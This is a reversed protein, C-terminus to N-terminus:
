AGARAPRSVPAASRTLRRVRAVEVDVRSTAGSPGRRFHRRLAREEPDASFRGRLVVENVPEPIAGSDPATRARM